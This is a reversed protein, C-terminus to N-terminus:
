RLASCVLESMDLDYDTDRVMVGVLPKGESDM